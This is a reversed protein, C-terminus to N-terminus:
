WNVKKFDVKKSTVPMKYVYFPYYVPPSDVQNEENESTLAIALLINEESEESKSLIPTKDGQQKGLCLLIVQEKSFDVKPVPLGPKRTKNIETYLSRLSKADRIVSAEYEQFGSHYDQALLTADEMQKM